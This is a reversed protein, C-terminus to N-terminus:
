QWQSGSRLCYEKCPADQAAALARTRQAWGLRVQLSLTQHSLFRDLVGQALADLTVSICRRDGRGRHAGNSEQQALELGKHALESGSGKVPAAHMQRLQRKLACGIVGQGLVSQQRWKLMVQTRARGCFRLLATSREQIGKDIQQNRQDALREGQPQQCLGPPNRCVVAWSM